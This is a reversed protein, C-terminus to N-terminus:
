KCVLDSFIRNNNVKTNFQTNKRNAHCRCANQFKWAEFGNICMGYLMEILNWGIGLVKYIKWTKQSWESIELGWFLTYVRWVFNRSLKMWNRAGYCVLSPYWNAVDYYVQFGFKEWIPPNKYKAAMKYRPCCGGNQIKAVGWFSGCVVISIGVFKWTTQHFSDWIKKFWGKKTEM